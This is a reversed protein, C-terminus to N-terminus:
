SVELAATAKSANWYVVEAPKFAQRQMTSRTSLSPMAHCPMAHRLYFLQEVAVQAQSKKPSNGQSGKSM